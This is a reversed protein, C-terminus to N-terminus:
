DDKKCLDYNSECIKQSEKFKTEANRIKEGIMVSPLEGFLIESPGVHIDIGFVKKSMPVSRRNELSTRDGLGSGFDIYPDVDYDKHGIGDQRPGYYNYTGANTPDRVIRNYDDSSLIGDRTDIIIEMQGNNHVFKKYRYNGNPIKQPVGQNNFNHFINEEDNMM